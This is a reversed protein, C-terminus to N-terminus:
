RPEATLRRLRSAQRDVESQVDPAPAPNRGAPWAQALLAGAERLRVGNAPGPQRVEVLDLLLRAVNTRAVALATEAGPATADAAALRERARLAERYHALSEEFRRQSRCLSGLSARVGAVGDLARASPPEAAAAAQFASLAQTWLTEAGPLDGRRRAVMALGSAAEARDLRLALDHPRRAADEADLAQAALLLREAEDLGGDQLALAGLRREVRAHEARGDEPLRGESALGEFAAAASGYMAKAAAADGEAERSAALRAYGTAAAARASVDHPFDRVLQDVLARLRADAKGAAESDGRWDGLAVLDGSAGALMVLAKVSTPEAALAQEAAAVATALSAAASGTAASEAGAGDRQLRALSRYGEAAQMGLRVRDQNREGRLVYAHWALAGATAILAVLVAATLGARIGTSRGGAAMRARFTAPSVSAPRRDRWARLDAALAAATGYRERPDKRLAKMLIRDLTGSLARRDRGVAVASPVDPEFEGIMRRARAPTQGGLEYPPYGTLLTYLLIGLAYVESATTVVGGRAQEPSMSQHVPAEAGGPASGTGVLAAMGCDLVKLGADASVLVNAPTLNGHAVLHQHAHELADCVALALDVRERVSLGHERCWADIPDGAVYEFALYATGEPTVGGDLLRPIGPHDLHALVSGEAKLQSLFVPDHADFALVHLAVRPRVGGGSSVAEFITRAEDRAIERILRYTGFQGGAPTRSPAPTGPWGQAPTLRAPTLRGGPEDIYWPDDEHAHLM